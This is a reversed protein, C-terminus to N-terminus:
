SSSEFESGGSVGAGTKAARARLLASKPVGAAMTSSAVMSMLVFVSVFVPLVRFEWHPLMDGVLSGPIKNVGPVAVVRRLVTDKPL